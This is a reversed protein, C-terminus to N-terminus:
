TSCLDGCLMTYTHAQPYRFCQLAAYICAYVCLVGGCLQHVVAPSGDAAKGPEVAMWCQVAILRCRELLGCLQQPM